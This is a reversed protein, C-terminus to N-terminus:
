GAHNIKPIQLVLPASAQPSVHPRSALASIIKLFAGMFTRFDILVSTNLRAAFAIPL